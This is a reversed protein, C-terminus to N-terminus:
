EERPGRGVGRSRGFRGPEPVQATVPGPEPTEQHGTAPEAEPPTLTMTPDDTDGDADAAEDSALPEPDAAPSPDPLPDATATAAETAEPASEEASGATPVWTPVPEAPRPTPPPAPQFATSASKWGSLDQLPLDAPYQRAQLVLARGYPWRLVEEPTLLPRATAAESLTQKGGASQMAMSRSSTQVTFTGLKDSIARATELDNSSLYVWTDCSGLIANMGDGYRKLQALAQIALVFRIGRSRAVAIKAPFDPIKPITGFEDLLCWVPVPVRGGSESALISLAAYLQTLYLAALANRAGGSDPTVLFVATPEQGVRTPDHEDGSCLWAIGPEGWLRLHAASGTLISARTRSESLAVTGYARRAPHESGLGTMFEDLASVGEADAPGLESLLRYATAPHRAESPAELCTALTLAAILSEEAQPWIPDSGLGLEAFALVNAFDWASKAAEEGDGQALAKTVASFPNWRAGRAPRLLDLVVVRYGRARFWAATHAHLEGKPDTCVVSEKHSGIVYLTTLIIRRTKGSGPAGVVLAHPNGPATVDTAWAKRGEAGVVLGAPRPKDGARATRNM